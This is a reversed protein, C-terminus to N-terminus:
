RRCSGDLRAKCKSIGNISGDGRGAFVYPNDGLHPLARIIDLARPPLVLVGAFDKERPLKPITWEGDDSIDAWQM